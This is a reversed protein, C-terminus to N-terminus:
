KIADWWNIRINYHCLNFILIHLLLITKPASHSSLIFKSMPNSSINCGMVLSVELLCFPTSFHFLRTNIFIITRSMYTSLQEFSYLIIFTSNITQISLNKFSKAYISICNIIVDILFLIVSLPSIICFIFKEIKNSKTMLYVIFM